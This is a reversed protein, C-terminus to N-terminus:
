RTLAVLVRALISIDMAEHLLAEPYVTALVQGPRTQVDLPKSIRAGLAARFILTHM